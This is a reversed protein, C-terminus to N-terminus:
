CRPPRVVCSRKARLRCPASSPRWYRSVGTATVPSPFATAMLAPSLCLQAIRLSPAANQQPLSPKWCSPLPVTVPLWNVGTSTGDNRSFISGLTARLPLVLTVVTFM